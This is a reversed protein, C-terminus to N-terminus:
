EEEEARRGRRRKRRWGVGKGGRGGGGEGPDEKEEEVRRKRRNKKWGEGLGLRPFSPVPPLSSMPLFPSGGPQRALPPEMDRWPVEQPEKEKETRRWGRGPGERGGGDEEEKRRRTRRRDRICM